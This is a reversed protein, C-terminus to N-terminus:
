LFGKVDSRKVLIHHQFIVWAEDVSSDFDVGLAVITDLCHKDELAIFLYLILMSQGIRLTIFITSTGNHASLALIFRPNTCRSAKIGYFLRPNDAIVCM